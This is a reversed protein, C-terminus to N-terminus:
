VVRPTSPEGNGELDSGSFLIAGTSGSRQVRSAHALTCAMVAHLGDNGADLMRCCTAGVNPLPGDWDRNSMSPCDMRPWCSWSLHARYLTEMFWCSYKSTRDVRVRSLGRLLVFLGLPNRYRLM